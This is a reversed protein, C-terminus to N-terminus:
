TLPKPNVTACKEQGRQKVKATCTELRSSTGATRKTKRKNRQRREM